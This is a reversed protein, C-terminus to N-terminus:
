SFGDVCFRGIVCYQLMLSADIYDHSIADWLVM